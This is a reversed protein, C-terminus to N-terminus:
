LINYSSFAILSVSLSYFHNVALIVSSFLAHKTHEVCHMALKVEFIILGCENETVHMYTM